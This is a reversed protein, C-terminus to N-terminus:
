HTITFTTPMEVVIPRSEGAGAPVFRVYQLADIVAREFAAGGTSRVVRITKSDPVGASDVVVHVVVEGAQGAALLEPPYHPTVCTKVAPTTTVNGSLDWAHTM